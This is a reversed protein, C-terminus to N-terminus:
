CLIKNANCSYIYHIFSQWPETEDCKDSKLYGSIYKNYKHRSIYISNDIVHSYVSLTDIFLLLAGLTKAMNRIHLGYSSLDLEHTSIFIIPKRALVAFSVATSGQILVFLSQVALAATQGFIVDRNGMNLFINPDKESNPHGAIVVPLGYFLEIKEFFSCLQKYYLSADVPSKIGLLVFDDAYALADDVFLIFDKNLGTIVNEDLSSQIKQFCHYDESAIPIVINSKKLLKGRGKDGAILLVDLRDVYLRDPTFSKMIEKMGCRVSKVDINQKLENELSSLKAYKDRYRININSKIYNIMRWFYSPVPLRGSWVQVRKIKLNLLIKKIAVNENNDIVYEPSIHILQMKLEEYASVKIFNMFYLKDYGIYKANVYVLKTCDIVIVNFYKALYPIGFRFYNQKTLPIGMLVCITVKNVASCSNGNIIDSDM